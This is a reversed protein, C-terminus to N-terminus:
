GTARWVERDKGDKKFNDRTIAGEIELGALLQEVEEKTVDPRKASHKDTFAYAAGFRGQTSTPLPEGITNCPSM